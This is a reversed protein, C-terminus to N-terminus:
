PDTLRSGAEESCLACVDKDGIYLHVGCFLHSGADDLL